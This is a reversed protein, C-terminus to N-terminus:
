FIETIRMQTVSAQAPKASVACSVSDKSAAKFSAVSRWGSIAAESPRM